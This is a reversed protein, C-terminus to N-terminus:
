GRCEKASVVLPRLWGFKCCVQELMVICCVGASWWRYKGSGRVLDHFLVENWSRCSARVTMLVGLCCRCVGGTLWPSFLIPCQDILRQLM